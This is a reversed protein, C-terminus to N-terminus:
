RSRSTKWCVYLYDGGRGQNLDSTHLYMRSSPYRSKKKTRWLALETIPPDKPDCFFKLHRCPHSTGAVLNTRSCNSVSCRTGSPTIELSIGTIAEDRLPTKEIVLYSYQGKFKANIDSNMNDVERVLTEGSTIPFPSLLVTVSRIYRADTLPVPPYLTRILAIDLPSLTHAQLIPGHGSAFVHPPFHYHMISNEDWSTRRLDHPLLDLINHQILKASWSSFHAHLATEDFCFPRDPHQHEHGLGIMHCFEHLVVRSWEEESTAETLWGFNMTPEGHPVQLADTGIYSWSSQDGKYSFTIRVDASGASVDSFEFMLSNQDTISRAIRRVKAHMRKTGNLFSIRIARGRPWLKSRKESHYAVLHCVDTSPSLTLPPPLCLSM